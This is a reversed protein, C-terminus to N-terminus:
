LIVLKEIEYLEYRIQKFRNSTENDLLKFSEELVRSSEQVRKFNAILVEKVNTRNLESKTTQKSPDNAIDRAKLYTEYTDVQCQHRLNKLKKSLEQNQNYYRQFDEIVRIGEKLRNLNADIIRYLKSRTM